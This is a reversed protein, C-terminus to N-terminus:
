PQEFNSRAENLMQSYKFLFMLAGYNEASIYFMKSILTKEIHAVVSSFVNFSFFFVRYSLATFPQLFTQSELNHWGSTVPLSFSFNGGYAKRTRLIKVM